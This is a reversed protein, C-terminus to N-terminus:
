PDQRCSLPRRFGVSVVTRRASIMKRAPSRTLTSAATVMIPKAAKVLNSVRDTTPATNISDQRESGPHQGHQEDLLWRRVAIEPVCEQSALFGAARGNVPDRNGVAIAIHPSTRGDLLLRDRLIATTQASTRSSTGTKSTETTTQPSTSLSM